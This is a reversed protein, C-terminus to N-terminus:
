RSAPNLEPRLDSFFSGLTLTMVDHLTRRLSERTSGVSGVDAVGVSLERNPNGPLGPRPPGSVDYSKAFVQEGARLVEFETLLHAAGGEVSFRKLDIRIMLEAGPEFARACYANAYRVLTPGVEIEFRHALGASAGGMSYSYERSSTELIVEATLESRQASIAPKTPGPLSITHCALQPWALFFIALVLPPLTRKM